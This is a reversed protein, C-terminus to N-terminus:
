EQIDPRYELYVFRESENHLRDVSKIAYLYVPGVLASEDLFEKERTVAMINNVNEFDPEHGALFRYVVYYQAIEGDPAPDPEEWSLFPKGEKDKIQFRNVRNPPISDLWPMSPILAPQLYLRRCLSDSFSCLNDILSSARFFVNGSIRPDARTIDMQQLYQHPRTYGNPHDPALMYISHGVYLHGKYDLSGWWQLLNNFNARPHNTSWYLQPALYDVWHRLAWKRVDAFLHDFSADMRSTNSGRPDTGKNRWIGFPSVGFKVWPKATKISDSTRQIVLDVNRRRWDSRSSFGKGYRTWTKWDDVVEGQRPYPYYYDDFHVGDIDYNRVVEMIVDLVHDRVYPVGPDFYKGEAYDFTWDPHKVVINEACPPAWVNHSVARFPNFWAHFEMNREHCAEVMFTLPDYNGQPPRGQKGSLYHSWPALSSKYFADGAPRVQFIVANIGITQLKDLMKLFELRQREGSLNPKSPWDLNALTSVWVARFERKPAQALSVSSLLLVAVIIRLAKM